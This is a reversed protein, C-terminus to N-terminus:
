GSNVQRKLQQLLRCSYQTIFHINLNDFGMVAMFHIRRRTSSEAHALHDGCRKATVQFFNRNVPAFSLGARSISRRNSERRDTGTIHDSIVGDNKGCITLPKFNGM